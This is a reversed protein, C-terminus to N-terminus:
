MWAQGSYDRKCLYLKTDILQSRKYSAFHPKIKYKSGNCHYEKLDIILSHIYTEYPFMWHQLAFAESVGGGIFTHINHGIAEEQFVICLRTQFYMVKYM